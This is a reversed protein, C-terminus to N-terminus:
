CVTELSLQVNVFLLALELRNVKSKVNCSTSYLVMNCHLEIIIDYIAYLRTCHLAAYYFGNCDLM